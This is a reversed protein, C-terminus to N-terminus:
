ERPTTPVSPAGGIAAEDEVNIRVRGDDFTTVYVRADTTMERLAEFWQMALYVEPSARFLAVRGGQRAVRGRENMHLRWRDARAQLILQAAEGGAARLLTEIRIEQEVIEDPTAGRRQMAELVDLERVISESREVSAVVQTLTGIRSSRADEIARERRQESATVRQYALAVDNAQPPHAAVIGAFLVDVGTEARTFAAQIRARLEDSLPGRGAGLIEDISRSGLFELVEREAISRLLRQRSGPEAFADFKTLDRVTFHVPAEIAVLSLDRPGQLDGAQRTPQVIMFQERQGSGLHDNTWLIPESGEPTHAGVHLKNVATASYTEVTEIPWPYKFHAGPGVERQLSGFRLVLAQENPQVIAISSLAWLVVGGSIFLLGLTRSLLRYFWSDTVDFGFQYSIAGGVSEALRDPAALFSLIRSEFAPKPAEGKRRPRYLNLVFNLVIEVGLVTMAVPLAVHMWRLAVPADLFDLFHAIALLLGVLSAGVSVAAGGRLNSWVPQKAMGAVFRAFVFGAAAVGVGLAIAWGTYASGIEADPDLMARESLFRVVGISILSGAYALSILPMLLRHMWELRRAAVRMEERAGEFVSSDFAGSAELAEAEMSELRELTHQHFVLALGLWVLSGLLIYIAGSLAATDRGFLAYLLIALGLGLQIMLGIVSISTARRYTLHDNRM